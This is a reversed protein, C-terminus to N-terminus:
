ICKGSITKTPGNYLNSCAFKVCRRFLVYGWKRMILAMIYLKHGKKLFPNQLLEKKNEKINKSIKEWIEDDYCKSDVMMNLVNIQVILANFQLEKEIDISCENFYRKREEICMLIEARKRSFRSTTISNERIRYIYLNQSVYAIKKSEYILKYTTFEDEHLRGEPFRIKNFLERKYLKNWTNVFSQYPPAFLRRIANESDLTKYDFLREPYIKGSKLYLFGCESIDANNQIVNEYLCEIFKKDVYDDSDIFSYYEGKAMDIGANRASSLGGNLKHIVKIRKDLGVYHDCIRGSDDTSGDDVL